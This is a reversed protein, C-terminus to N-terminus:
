YLMGKFYIPFNLYFFNSNKIKPNIRISINAGIELEFIQFDDIAYLNIIYKMQFRTKRLLSYSFIYKKFKVKCFKIHLLTQNLSQVLINISFKVKLLINFLNVWPLFLPLLMNNQKKM